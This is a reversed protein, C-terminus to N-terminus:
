LMSRKQWSNKVTKQIELLCLAKLTNVTRHRTPSVLCIPLTLLAQVKKEAITQVHDNGDSNVFKTTQLHSILRSVPQKPKVILTVVLNHKSEDFKASVQDEYIPHPLELILNYMEPYGLNKSELTLVHQSIGSELVRLKIGEPSSIEPLSVEVLFSTPQGIATPVDWQNYRYKIVYQPEKPGFIPSTDPNELFRDNKMMKRIEDCFCRYRYQPEKSVEKKPAIDTKKALTTNSNTTACIVVGCCTKKRVSLNPNTPPGSDM